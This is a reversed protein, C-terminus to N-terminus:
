LERGKRAAQKREFYQTKTVMDYTWNTVYNRGSAQHLWDVVIVDDRASWCGTYEVYGSPRVAEAYNWAYGTSDALERCRQSSTDNFSATNGSTTTGTLLTGANALGAAALAAAIILKKM